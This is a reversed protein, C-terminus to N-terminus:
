YTKGSPLQASLFHTYHHLWEADHDDYSGSCLVYTTRAMLTEAYEASKLVSAKGPVRRPTRLGQSRTLHM